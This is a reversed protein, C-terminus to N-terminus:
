FYYLLSLSGSNYGQEFEQKRAFDFRLALDRGLVVRQELGVTRPSDRQGMFYRMSHLYGHIRWRSNIDLLVGTSAGAGLAYGHTLDGNIRTSGDFLAYWLATENTNSWSGGVGGDVAAAFPESGNSARVRKWGAEIKWSKSQFFDDRPTLSLINVPTFKEVRTSGSNYHRISLSFFEIQAGRVYGGDADMIDHYTARASLEQFNQGSRRGAGLTIRSSGHGQEPHVEPMPIVPTQAVADLRSRATFLERALGASDAVDDKGIARRYSLYDQSTEIVAAAHSAPLDSLVSDGAVIRKVSLDRALNREQESLHSLRHRLVTANAPRYVVKKVMDPQRAIVRVADAPIAWWRFQSTWDLEPRAVQLLSLLHYACNEDFFFYQFYASGLEWAHRLVRDLEAPSLNMQYEWMDRNELDSYERVKLYYPLISFAGPYGGFLGNAAFALGNTENTNAAFTIAYALLRTSDNQDKADVRILPHGYMSSPSNLYASAFILTLGNPNLAALWQQYRKCERRPLRQPDFTLHEDLWAYRAVFLCQSNQQTNSEETDSYFKTLTAELESQPNYKGDPANYFKPDDVLGHVNTSFLNPAYHVLKRWEPREALRLQRAKDILESLYVDDVAGLASTQPLLLLAFVVSKILHM